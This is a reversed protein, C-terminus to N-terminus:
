QGVVRTRASVIDYRLRSEKVKKAAWFIARSSDDTYPARRRDGWIDEIIFGHKTLWGRMEETSPPHKQQTWEKTYARGDPTQVTATRRFRVLRRASDHWVTESTGSVRTGDSCVGTPFVGESVGPEHWSPDLWGEMHNNDLYLHGGPMLAAAAAEICHEQEEETALEYFCNAGLIVVDFGTPWRDAIVDAKRFSARKQVREPLERLRGNLSQLLQDSLDMGTIEYGLEALPILIRGHGCFPELIRTARAGVLLRILAVDDQQTETQDYIEAIYRDIADYSEARNTAPTGSMSEENRV